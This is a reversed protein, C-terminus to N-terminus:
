AAKSWHGCCRKYKQGSGCPCQVNRGPNQTRKNMEHIQAKEETGILAKLRAEIANIAESKAETQQIPTEPRPSTQKKFRLVDRASVLGPLHLGFEAQLHRDTQLRRLEAADRRLSIKARTRYKDFIAKYEETMKSEDLVACTQLRWAARVIEAAILTEFVGIPCLEAEYLAVFESYAQRDTVGDKATLGTLTFPRM